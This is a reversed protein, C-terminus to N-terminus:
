PETSNSEPEGSFKGMLDKYRGVIEQANSESESISGDLRQREESTPSLKFKWYQLFADKMSEKMKVQSSQIMKLEDNWRNYEKDEKTNRGSKEIFRGLKEIRKELAEELITLETIATQINRGEGSVFDSFAKDYEDLEGVDEVKDDKTEHQVKGGPSIAARDEADLFIGARRNPDYKKNRKGCKECEQDRYYIENECYACDVMPSLGMSIGALCGLLGFVLFGVAWKGWRKEKVKNRIVLGLGLFFFVLAVIMGGTWEASEKDRYLYWWFTGSELEGFPGTQDVIPSQANITGNKDTSNQGPVNTGNKDKLNQIFVLIQERSPREDKSLQGDGDTDFRTNFSDRVDPDVTSQQAAHAVTLVTLFGIFFYTLRYM